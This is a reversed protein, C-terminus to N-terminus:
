GNAVATVTDLERERARMTILVAVGVGSAAVSLLAVIVLVYPEIIPATIDESARFEFEVLALSYAETLESQQQENANVADSLSFTASRLDSIRADMERDNTVLRARAAQAPMTQSCPRFLASFAPDSSNLSAKLRGIVSLEYQCDNVSGLFDSYASRREARRAETRSHEAALWSSVVAVIVGGIVAWVAPATRERM